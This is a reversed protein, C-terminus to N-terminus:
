SRLYKLIRGFFEKMSLRVTFAYRVVDPVRCFGSLVCYSGLLKTFESSTEVFELASKQLVGDGKIAVNKSFFVYM